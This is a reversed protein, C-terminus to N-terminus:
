QPKPRFKFFITHNAPVTKGHSMAPQFVWQKAATVAASVALSNPKTRDRVARADTVRGHLDITVQVEVQDTEYVLFSGLLRMDPM